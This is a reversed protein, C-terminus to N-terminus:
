SDNRSKGKRSDRDRNQRWAQKRVVDPAVEQDDIGASLASEPRPQRVTQVHVGADYFDALINLLIASRLIRIGKRPDAIFFRLQLSIGTEDVTMILAAPPPEELVRPVQNAASTMIQLARKIDTDYPVTVNIKMRIERSERSFNVIPNNLLVSNPVLISIDDKDKLLVYRMTVRDVWGYAPEGEDSQYGQISIVDGKRISQEWRMLVGAIFNSLFDRLALCLGGLLAGVVIASPGPNKVVFAVILALLLPAAMFILRRLFGRVSPYPYYTLLM